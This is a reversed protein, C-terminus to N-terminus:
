LWDLVMYKYEAPSQQFDIKFNNHSNWIRNKIETGIFTSVRTNKSIYYIMYANEICITTYWFNYTHKQQKNHISVYVYCLDIIARWVSWAKKSLVEHWNKNRKSCKDYSQNLQLTTHILHLCLANMNKIRKWIEEEEFFPFIKLFYIRTSGLSKNCLAFNHDSFPLFIIGLKLLNM